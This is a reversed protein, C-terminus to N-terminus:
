EKAIVGNKDEADEAAMLISVLLEELEITDEIEGAPVVEVSIKCKTGRNRVNAYRGRKSNRRIDM